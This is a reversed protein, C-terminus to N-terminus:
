FTRWFAAGSDALPTILQHSGNVGDVATAFVRWQNTVVNQKGVVLCDGVARMHAHNMRNLPTTSEIANAPWVRVQENNPSTIMYAMTTGFQNPSPHSVPNVLPSNVLVNVALTVTNHHMVRSLADSRVFGIFDGDNDVSSQSDNVALANQIRRQYLVAAGLAPLGNYKRYHVKRFGAANPADWTITADFAMQTISANLEDGVWNTLRQVTGAARNILYLNYGTALADDMTFVIYTGSVEGAASQIPFASALVLVDTGTAMNRQRIHYPANGVGAPQNVYTVIGNLCNAPLALTELEGGSIIEEPMASLKGDSLDLTTTDVDTTETYAPLANMIDKDTFEPLEKLEPQVTSCAALFLGVLFLSLLSKLTKM